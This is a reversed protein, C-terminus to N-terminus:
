SGVFRAHLSKARNLDTIGHILSRGDPFVTMSVGSPDLLRCRVLFPTRLVEGVGGLRVALRELNLETKGAPRVQVANRGCLSAASHGAPTDLFDFHRQTCCPCNPDRADALTVAHMRPSWFDFRLLSPTPPQGTLLKLAEIAQYSAVINTAMSLVGATDCTPLDQPSPPNPFICRLCPTQGPLISMVRGETAVAGAYVWPKDHKIAVDNLLYRTQVNDTGDLLLHLDPNVLNQINGPHVDTVLPIIEVTSNIARLRNAAAVAKPTQDRADAEDFLTQRQLNSLEVIDRDALTLHGVGARVLQDALTTGLAGCGILLVRSAALRQQGQQGIQPLLAQRQYRQLDINPADNEV